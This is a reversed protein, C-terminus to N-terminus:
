EWADASDSKGPICDVGYDAGTFELHGSAELIKVILAMIYGRQRHSADAGDGWGLGIM